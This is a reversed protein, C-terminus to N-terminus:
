NFSCNYAFKKMKVWEKVNLLRQSDTGKVFNAKTQRKIALNPEIYLDEEFHM